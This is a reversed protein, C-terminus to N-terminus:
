AHPALAAAWPHDPTQRRLAARLWARADADLLPRGVVFDHEDAARPAKSKYLLVVEPALVPVGGAGARLVRAVPRRVGPDRRYVWDDGARENLLFEVVPGPSGPGPRAYVEHVPPALREGAEWAGRVGGRVAEFAWGPLAARLAAQDDRFVAV